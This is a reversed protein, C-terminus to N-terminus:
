DIAESLLLITLSQGYTMPSIPINMYFHEDPGVPTGYSVNQVIGKADINNLVGEL